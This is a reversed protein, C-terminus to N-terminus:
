RKPTARGILFEYVKATGYLFLAPRVLSLLLRVQAAVIAEVPLSRLLYGCAFASLVSTGPSQRVREECEEYGHQLSHQANRLVGTIEDEVTRPPHLDGNGRHRQLGDFRDAAPDIASPQIITDSM